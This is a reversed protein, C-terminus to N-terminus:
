PQRRGGQGGNGRGAQQDALKAFFDLVDVGRVYDFRGFRVSRLGARKAHAITKREWGLRRAAERLPLIEGAVISGFGPRSAPADPRPKM